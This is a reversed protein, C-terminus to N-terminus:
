RYRQVARENSTKFQSEYHNNLFGACSLKIDKQRMCTAPKVPYM